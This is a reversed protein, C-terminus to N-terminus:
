LGLDKLTNKAGVKLWPRPGYKRNTGLGFYPYIVYDVNNTEFFISMGPNKTKRVVVRASTSDLTFATDIPPRTFDPSRFATRSNSDAIKTIERRRKTLSNLMAKNIKAKVQFKNVFGAM